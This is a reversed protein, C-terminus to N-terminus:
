QVGAPDKANKEAFELFRPGFKTLPRAVNFRDQWEKLKKDIVKREAEDKTMQRKAALENREQFFKKVAVDFEKTLARLEEGAESPKTQALQKDDAQLTLPVLTMLTLSVLQRQMVSTRWISLLQAM